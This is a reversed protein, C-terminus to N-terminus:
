PYAGLLEVLAAVVENHVLQLRYGGVQVVAAEGLGNAGRDIMHDAVANRALLAQFVAVDDVDIHGHNAIAKMPVGAAHVEDAVGAHQGPAWKPSMPCAM